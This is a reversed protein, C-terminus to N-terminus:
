YRRGVPPTGQKQDVGGGRKAVGVHCRSSVWGVAAVGEPTDTEMATRPVCPRDDLRGADQTATQSDSDIHVDTHVHPSEATAVYLALINVLIAPGARSSRAVQRKPPM